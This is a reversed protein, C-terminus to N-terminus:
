RSIGALRRDRARSKERFCAEDRSTCRYEGTVTEVKIVPFSQLKWQDSSTQRLRSCVPGRGVIKARAFWRCEDAMSFHMSM